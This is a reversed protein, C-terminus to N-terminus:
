DRVGVFATAPLYPGEWAGSRKEDEQIDVQDKM